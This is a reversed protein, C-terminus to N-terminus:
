CGASVIHVTDVGEFVLNFAGAAMRRVHDLRCSLEVMASMPNPNAPSGASLYANRLASLEERPLERVLMWRKVALYFGELADCALAFENVDGLAKPMVGIAALHEAQELLGSTIPTVGHTAAEYRALERIGARVARYYDLTLM